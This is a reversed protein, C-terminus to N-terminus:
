EQWDDQKGLAAAIRQWRTQMTADIQNTGTEAICGGAAIHPDERLRWGSEALADQLHRRVLDADAPNLLLQAPQVVVAFEALADQVVPLVLSPNVALENKLMAKSIDLALDLMADATTEHVRGFETSLGSLLALLQAREGEARRLGDQYGAQRGLELGEAHGEQRGLERAQDMALRLQEAAAKQEATLRPARPVATEGFSDLEWRQWATLRGKAQAESM